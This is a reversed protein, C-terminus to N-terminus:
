LLLFFMFSRELQSEVQALNKQHFMSKMVSTSLFFKRCGFLITVVKREYFILLFCNAKEIAKNHQTRM